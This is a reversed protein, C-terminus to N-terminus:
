ISNAPKSEEANNVVPAIVHVIRTVPTASTGADDSVNYTITYDGVTAVNVSGSIAIKSTIDNGSGDKATAGLESYVDNQTITAEPNGNLTIVPVVANSVQQSDGSTTPQNNTNIPTILTEFAKGKQAFAHWFFGIDTSQSPNIHIEFGNATVNEVWYRGTNVDWEPTVTIAPKESYPSGFAVMVQTDGSKIVAEGASDKGLAIHGDISLAGSISLENLSNISVSGAGSAQVSALQSKIREFETQQEQIAKVLYPAFRDYTIGYCDLGTTEDCNEPHEPVTVVNVLGTEIVDQAIFGVQKLGNVDNKYNYTVPKLKMIASLGSTETLSDINTKLRKDSAASWSTGGDTIWVGANNHNRVYLSNGGSSGDVLMNWNKGAGSNTNRLRLFNGSGSELHLLAGPATTGIGVNGVSDIIMRDAGNGYFRLSNDSDKMYTTWYDTGSYLSLGVDGSAVSLRASGVVHLPVAPAATGIGVNGISDIIMRDVGATGFYISKTGVQTTYGILDIYSTVNVNTGGGSRLRLIGGDSASGVSSYGRIEGNISTTAIAPRASDTMMASTMGIKGNVDLSFGPTTTGIGVNGNALVTLGSGATSNAQIRGIVGNTVAGTNAVYLLGNTSNGSAYSSTIALGTGTTLANATMAMGTGTTITSWNWTQDYNTNDLAGSATAAIISNLALGTSATSGIQTVKFYTGGSGNNTATNGSGVIGPNPGAHGILKVGVQINQTSTYTLKLMGAGTANGNLSGNPSILTSRASNSLTANNTYDYFEFTGATPNATNYVVLQAELDYTKGAILTFKSSSYSMNGAALTSDFGIQAGDAVTGTDTGTYRVFGYDVTNVVNQPTSVVQIDAETWGNNAVTGSLIVTNSSSYLRLEVRTDVIPTYYAVASAPSAGSPSLSPDTFFGNTGITTGSDSNYWYFVGYTANNPVMMGSLKYTKGAKLLFRGRSAANTATTYTSTTDLTIDSGNQSIITGFDAHDGAGVTLTSGSLRVQIYNMSQGVSSRNDAVIYSNTGDSRIVVSDNQNYLYINNTAGNITQAGNAAVRVTNASNDTKVVEITQGSNGVATPLTVIVSASTADTKATRSWATMTTNASISQITMTSGGGVASGNWNLAGANNSLAVGGIYVTNPSVYMSKWQKAGSGLDYTVDTGPLINGNVTVNGDLVINGKITITDLASGVTINDATTNDTAINVTNGATGTGINITKANNGSGINILGTTGSDLTVAGTGNSNLALATNTGGSSITLAGSGTVSAANSLAGNNIVLGNITNTSAPAVIASSFTKAGAVTQAGTTILGRATASADPINFTHTTGSSSINFDTGTTGTAFTQTQGTLGNLSIIGSNSLGFASWGTNLTDTTKIYLLGNTTDIALSGKDAAISGEPTGAVNHIGFADTGDTFSMWQGASTRTFKPLGGGTVAFTLDNGGLVISTGADLTLSNALKTFNLSNDVIGLTVGANETGSNAVNIIGSGSDVVTAVYNGTTDTGLAVKDAGITVVGANNMTVDGSLAVATAQNSANGIWILGNNLGTGLKENDLENIANQITVASINGSATNTIQAASYDGGSATVAGTRGFVSTVSNTTQVKEWNTGNCVAWDNIAWSTIGSLNSTGATGVVYYHGKTGAVCYSSLDPSNTTANWTGRYNMAGLVDSFMDGRTIKKIGSATYVPITDTSGISSAASLGNIDLSFSSSSLSLGNGATYTSNNDTACAWASGNWKIIENTACSNQSIKGFTITNNALDAATITGDTIESSEISTGLVSSLTGGSFALGSGALNTYTNGGLTFGNGFTQIGTWTNANTLDLAFSSGSLSIGSGATYSTGGADAGWAPLGGALKLVQGNSGAPLLSWTSSNSAFLLAGGALTDGTSVSTRVGCGIEAPGCTPSLTEGPAYMVGAAFTIPIKLSSLVLISVLAIGSIHKIKKIIMSKQNFFAAWFRTRNHVAM